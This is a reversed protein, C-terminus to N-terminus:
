KGDKKLLAIILEKDELWKLLRANEEELIRIKERLSDLHSQLLYPSQPDNAALNEIPDTSYYSFFDYSLVNSIKMLLATDISERRFIDYVNNRNTSIKRAFESVGLRKEKLVKKIQEGIHVM